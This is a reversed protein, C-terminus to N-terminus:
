EYRAVTFRFIKTTLLILSILKITHHKTSIGQPYRCVGFIKEVCYDSVFINHCSPKCIWLLNCLKCNCNCYVRCASFRNQVETNVMRYCHISPKIINDSVFIYISFFTAYFVLSGLFLYYQM